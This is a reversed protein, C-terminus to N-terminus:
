SIVKAVDKIKDDEDLRMLRVGVTNRGISSINKVSTRIVIGKKTIFMIEDEDKVAKIGVVFGNRESTKINRVGKGGRNVLRYDSVPSRKGYGNETITLLTSNEDVVEMGIVSDNVLKVGRVGSANRGVDRINSDKFRVANGNKTGIMLEKTNDTLKVEILQDGDKLNLAIIGGKRPRSYESLKTKKVLGKKTVMVLFQDDNFEKIPIVDSIKEGNDLNLLNVINGGKSYRSASPIKYGKLWYVRGKNSFFLLYNHTNTTFLQEVFDDDKTGTGVMGKGGRAQVRYTELPIRKVYGSHTVTVVVDEEKILDEDEFDDMVETIQTRRTDNYKEKLESLEKKIIGYIKEEDDLIEKLEKILKTLDEYEKSIRETELSTLRQLRMDLIAQAQKESLSFREILSNRAIVPDKSQKILKIVEDINDLAIKLGELIHARDEAKTLEFQTRRTVVRFRHNIYQRIIDRISLVKPQGAILSLMNIGFSTQLPSHKYLQNLILEHNADTKLEIVIRMGDRDSEDRIDSIGEVRKEKVLDAITEILITKNTMYPIESIIIRKRNGKEEISTKGRVRLIGRGTKYASNIGAKGCIIGGTPFDPGKIHNLIEDIEMEPNEIMAVIADVVEGLQHPPVNTAMGVAIGSSGNLLLNPLKAPLVIPEKTSNDYNPVFKVTEKDLDELLEEAFKSLKAETYRMSAPPNDGSGFNGQGKVLPYRLSFPQAMRVLTDYIAADGHPHFSAMCNGVVTASKRFPKNSLLGLKYMTYLVRRHVPKLGDHVDPLARSMIVSMSYDVYNQKMEDEILRKQIEEPM